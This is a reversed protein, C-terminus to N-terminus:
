ANWTLDLVAHVTPLTGDGTSSGGFEPATLIPWWLDVNASLEPLLESPDINGLQSLPLKGDTVDPLDIALSLVLEEAQTRGDPKAADGDVEIGLFAIDATLDPVDVTVDVSIEPDANGTVLYFGEAESLGFGVDISWEVEAEVGDAIGDGDGDQTALRLGPVGFDFPIPDATALPQGLGFEVRTDTVGLADLLTDDGACEANGC